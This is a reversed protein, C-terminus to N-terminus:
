LVVELVVFFAVFEEEFSGGSEDSLEAAGRAVLGEGVQVLSGVAEDYGGLEIRERNKESQQRKQRRATRENNEALM